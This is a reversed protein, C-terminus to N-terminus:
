LVTSMTNSTTLLTNTNASSPQCTTEIQNIADIRQKAIHDLEYKKDLNLVQDPDIGLRFLVRRYKDASSLEEEEDESESSYLHTNLYTERIPEIYGLFHM